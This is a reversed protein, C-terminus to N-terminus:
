DRRTLAQTRTPLYVVIFYIIASYWVGVLMAFRIAKSKRARGRNRMEQYKRMGGWLFPISLVSCVGVIAAVINGAIGTEHISIVGLWYATLLCILLAAVGFLYAARVSTVWEDSVRNWFWNFGLTATGNRKGKYARHM